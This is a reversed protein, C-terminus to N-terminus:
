QFKGKLQDMHHVVVGDGRDLWQTLSALGREAWIRENEPLKPSYNALYYTPVQGEIEYSNLALVKRHCVFIQNVM